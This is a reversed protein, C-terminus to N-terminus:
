DSSVNYLVSLFISLGSFSLYTNTHHIVDVKAFLNAFVNRKESIRFRFTKSDFIVQSKEKNGREAAWGLQVEKVEM